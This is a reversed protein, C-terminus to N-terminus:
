VISIAPEYATREMTTPIRDLQLEPVSWGNVEDWTVIRLDGHEARLAELAAILETITM